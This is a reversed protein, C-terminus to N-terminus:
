FSSHGLTRRVIMYCIILVVLTLLIATLVACADSLRKVAHAFARM